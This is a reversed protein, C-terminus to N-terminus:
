GALLARVTKGIADADLLHLLESCCGTIGVLALAGLAIFVALEIWEYRPSCAQM